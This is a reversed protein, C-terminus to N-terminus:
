RLEQLRGPRRRSQYEALALSLQQLAVLNHVPLFDDVFPLAAQIGRTLPEYGASGLLPNLWMLRYCSRQLRDMEQALQAPDGRDWGDSIILVIAGQGLLRRAWSQNFTAIAEGIRTGGSWDVVAAASREVAADIDRFALHRTIRTLRTSFLFAEVRDLRSSLAYLFQLLVRSYREMSGSIDCIAVMPRPRWKRRRHSLQLPEGGYRLNRRFSRRLDLLEGRSSPQRRRTRRLDPEWSMDQIMAKVQALEYESMSAFDKRTLAESESYTYVRDLEPEDSAATTVDEENRAVLRYQEQANPSKQLLDGLSVRPLDGEQRARWFLDFAEDFLSRDELRNVFIARAAEKVDERRELDIMELASVFTLMQNPTVGIDVARLLRGFLVINRLLQGSGASTPLVTHTM